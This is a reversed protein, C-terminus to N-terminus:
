WVLGIELSFSSCFKGKKFKNVVVRQNFSLKENLALYLGGSM